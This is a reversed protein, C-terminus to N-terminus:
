VFSGVLRFARTANFLTFGFNFTTADTPPQLQDFLNEVIALLEVERVFKMLEATASTRWYLSSPRSMSQSYGVLMPTGQVEPLVQWRM